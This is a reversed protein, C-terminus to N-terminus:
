SAHPLIDNAILEILETDDLDLVQLYISTAGAERFQNLKEIAEGPLGAIGNTRLESPERGIAAARKIFEAESTGCCAVLAISRELSSPDRSIRECAADALPQQSKFTDLSAFPLNYEDAYRAAMRPTRKEGLGGVILHPHPSQLPKPLAPCSELHYHKGDFSFSEGSPTGWIGTLIALQEDLREFRTGQDPFPIGYASHEDEYWGAGLGLEVRGNSMHDVQSVMISLHGPYRFTASSLLTGLRITSTERAIGALSIWSDTPGPLGSVNGMKLFHDSRFYGNFGLLEALRAIELEKDYTAGQQPEIFINYRM